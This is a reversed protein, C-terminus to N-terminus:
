QCHGGAHYCPFHRCDVTSRLMVLRKTALATAPDPRSFRIAVALVAAASWSTPARRGLHRSAPTVQHGRVRQLEAPWRSKADHVVRALAELVRDEGPLHLRSFPEDFRRDGGMQAHAPRGDTFRQQHELLAAEEHVFRPAAGEDRAQGGCVREVQLHRARQQLRKGRAQGPPGDVVGHDFRHFGQEGLHCRATQRVAERPDDLDVERQVPQEDFARSRGAQEVQPGAEVTLDAGEHQHRYFAAVGRDLVDHRKVAAEDIRHARAIREHQLRCDDVVIDSATEVRVRQGGRDLPHETREGFGFRGRARRRATGLRPDLVPLYEPGARRPQASRSPLGAMFSETRRMPTSPAPLQAFDAWTGPHCRSGRALTTTIQSGSPVRASSNAARNPIGSALVSQRATTPRGSRSTMSMAVGDWVWKSNDDVAIPAPLCTRHSFGTAYSKRCVWSAAARAFRLPRLVFSPNVNRYLGPTWYAFDRISSPNTPAGNMKLPYSCFECHSSGATGSRWTSWVASWAVSCVDDSSPYPAGTMSM